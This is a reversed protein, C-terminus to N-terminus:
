DNLRSESSGAADSKFKRNLQQSRYEVYFGDNEIHETTKRDVGSDNWGKSPCRHLFHSRYSASFLITKMLELGFLNEFM